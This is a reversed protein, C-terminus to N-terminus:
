GLLWTSAFLDVLQLASSHDYYFTCLFFFSFVYQTLFILFFALSSLSDLYMNMYLIIVIIASRHRM